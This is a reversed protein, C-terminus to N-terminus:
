SKQPAALLADSAEAIRDILQIDRPDLRDDYLPDSSDRFVKEAWGPRIERPPLSSLQRGIYHMADLIKSRDAIMEAVTYSRIQDASADVERYPDAVSSPSQSRALKMGDGVVPRRLGPGFVALRLQKFGRAFASLQPSHEIEHNAKDNSYVV